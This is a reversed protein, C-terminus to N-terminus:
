RRGLRRPSMILVECAHKSLTVTIPGEFQGGSCVPIM